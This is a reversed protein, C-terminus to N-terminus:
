QPRLRYLLTTIMSHVVEGRQNKVKRDFTVIGSTGKSSQKKEIPTIVVHITDGHKVPLHMRWQDNGLMAIITGDNIGSLCQLGGAIALVLPGHAIPEGYSQTKCFEHDIHPANHDGSLCAFNVIDTLTVTRRSTVITKGIEFDEFYMGRPKREEIEQM